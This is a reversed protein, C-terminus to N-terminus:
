LTPLVRKGTYRKATAGHAPIYIAVPSGNCLRCEHCQVSKGAEVSAPCLTAGDLTEGRPVVTFTGAYGLRNAKAIDAVTDCSAMVLGALPKGLRESRWQHTYGTHGISQDLLAHWVAVPVAAPDGYTGLRVYRGRGMASIDAANRAVPYPNRGILKQYVARPGHGLNVYCTRGKGTKGDGRHICGGCISADNGSRVAAMPGMDSRLIYTQLMNGTKANTSNAVAVVVIPSSDILSPGDYIIV